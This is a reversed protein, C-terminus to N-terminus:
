NEEGPSIWKQYIYELIRNRDEDNIKNFKLGGRYESARENSSSAWAIQGEIIVPVNDGPIKMEIEVEEGTDFTEESLLGVGEKSFNNIKVSKKTKRCRCLADLFVNFRMFRRKEGM